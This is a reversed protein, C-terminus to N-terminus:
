AHAEALWTAGPLHATGGGVKEVERVIDSAVQSRM